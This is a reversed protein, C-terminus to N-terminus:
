PIALWLQSRLGDLSDVVTVDPRELELQILINDRRTYDPHAGVFLPKPAGTVADRWHAWSGLEYLSILCLAEAPFWFAIASSARLDDHEWRIQERLANPDLADYHERRPNLVNWGGASLEAALASQWDGAGSIGGALFLSNAHGLAPVRDPPHFVM